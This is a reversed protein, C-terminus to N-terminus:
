AVSAEKEIKSCVDQWMASAANSQDGFVILNGDEM